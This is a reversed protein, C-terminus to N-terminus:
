IGVVTLTAACWYIINFILIFTLSGIFTWKDMRREIADWNSKINDHNMKEVSTVNKTLFIPSDKKSEKDQNSVVTVVNKTNINGQFYKKLTLLFAYELIGLLIPIHVGIMWIEIYSFGRKSPADVSNYVNTVILDLTILLGM